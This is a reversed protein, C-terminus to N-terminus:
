FYNYFISTVNVFKGTQLLSLQLPARHLCTAMQIQIVNLVDQKIIANSVILAVLNVFEM